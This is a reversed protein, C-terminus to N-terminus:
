EGNAQRVFTRLRALVRCKRVYVDGITMNLKAAVEEAALGDISTWQFACWARESFEGRIQDAAWTFLRQQYERDWQAQYSGDELCEIARQIEPDGAGVPLRRGKRWHDVLKRRLIVFLWNRFRGKKSRIDFSFIAQVVSSLTEQSVDRVDADQLRQSRLFGVIVPGYIELFKEWYLGGGDEQIRAILSKPTDPLEPM